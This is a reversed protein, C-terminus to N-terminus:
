LEPYYQFIKIYRKILSHNREVKKVDIKFLGFTDVQKVWNLFPLVVFYSSRIIFDHVLVRTKRSCRLCAQLFSAIRFRGGVLVLGYNVRSRFIDAYYDLCSEIYDTTFPYRLESTKVLNIYRYALRGRDMAELITCINERFFSEDSEVIVMRQIHRFSATMYTSNGFSFELNTEANLLKNCLINLENETMAM